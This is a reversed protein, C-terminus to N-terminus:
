LTWLPTLSHHKPQNTVFFNLRQTFQLGYQTPKTDSWCPLVANHVNTSSHFFIVRSWYLQHMQQPTRTNYHNDCSDWVRLTGPKIEPLKEKLKIPKKLCM